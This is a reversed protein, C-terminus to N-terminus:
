VMSGPYNMGFTKCCSETRDKCSVYLNGKYYISYSQATVCAVGSSCMTALPHPPEFPNSPGYDIGTPLTYTTYSTSTSYISAATPGCNTITIKSTYSLPEPYTFVYTHNQYTPTPETTSYSSSLPAYTYTGHNTDVSVSDRINKHIAVDPRREHLIGVTFDSLLALATISLFPVHM